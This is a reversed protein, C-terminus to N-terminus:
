IYIYICMMWAVLAGVYRSIEPSRWEGRLILDSCLCRLLNKGCADRTSLIYINLRAM